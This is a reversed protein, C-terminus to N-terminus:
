TPALDRPTPRTADNRCDDAVVHTPSPWPQDVLGGELRPVM